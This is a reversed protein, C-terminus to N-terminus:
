FIIQKKKKYIYLYSLIKFDLHNRSSVNQQNFM